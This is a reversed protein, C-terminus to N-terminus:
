PGPSCADLERLAADWRERTWGPDHRRLPPFPDGRYGSAALSRRVEGVTRADESLVPRSVARARPAPCPGREWAKLRAGARDEDAQTLYKWLGRRVVQAFLGAPNTTGVARAHEAAAMVRLRDAESPTIFRREVAQRHLELLRGTNKLDEARVDVLRPPPLPRAPKGTGSLQAGAPGGPVPDQNKERGPLPDSDSGPPASRPGPPAPPLASRSGSPASFRPAEWALDLRYTRGWRNEAWQSSPEPLLWGFAVLAKRASRAQRLSVGFVGAVWSAKFRGRGDWGSRRRSLCRLLAALAVAITAASAGAALFRLIRRPIALTGRGRGITDLLEDDKLIRDPFGIASDSWELHGAAALRKVSARARRESVGVLRALEAPTYNSARDDDLICRRARMEHCALWARYDGVGLPRSRCARWAAVLLAVDVRIFGGAIRGGLEVCVM